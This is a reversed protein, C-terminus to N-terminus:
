FFKQNIDNLNENNKRQISNAYVFSLSEDNELESIATSFWQNDVYGDTTTM